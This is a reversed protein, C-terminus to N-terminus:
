LTVTDPFVETRCVYFPEQGKEWDIFCPERIKGVLPKKACSPSSDALSVRQNVLEIPTSQDDVAHV